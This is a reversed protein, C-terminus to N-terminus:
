ELQVLTVDVDRKGGDRDVTLRVSKGVGSTEFAHLLDDLSEVKKGDVAVIRDGLHIGGSRDM